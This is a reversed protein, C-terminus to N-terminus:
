ANLIDSAGYVPALVSHSRYRQSIWVYVVNCIDFGPDTPDLTAPVLTRPKFLPATPYKAFFEPDIWGDSITTVCVVPVKTWPSDNINLSCVTAEFEDTM